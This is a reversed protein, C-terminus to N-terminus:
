TGEDSRSANHYNPRNRPAVPAMAGENLGSQLGRTYKGYALMDREAVGSVPTGDRREVQRM